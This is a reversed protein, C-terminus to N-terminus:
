QSSDGEFYEGKVAVCKAWLHQWQQFCNQFEQQPIPKLATMVNEKIDETDQFRRGKVTSKIKPFLWIDNPAL